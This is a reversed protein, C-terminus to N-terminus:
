PEVQLRCPCAYWVNSADSHKVRLGQERALDAITTAHHARHPLRLHRGHPHASPGAVAAAAAAAACDDFAM